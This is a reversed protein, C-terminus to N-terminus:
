KELILLVGKWGNDIDMEQKIAFRETMDKKITSIDLTDIVEHEGMEQIAVEFIIVGDDKLVRACEDLFVDLYLVHDIANCFVFDFTSDNFNLEHFDGYLVHENREGPNVDVGIALAGLRKFARVEGGLRAGLCIVSKDAFTFM